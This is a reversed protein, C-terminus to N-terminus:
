HYMTLYTTLIKEGWLLAVASGMALFPGFPIRDRRGRLGLLILLIGVLGGFLFGLFVAVIVYRGLVAGMLLAMKVDGLGMGGPWILALLLLFVAACASGILFEWWHKPELAIAAALGAAAAPLVIVNPIIQHELDIFAIAILIALFAWELVVRWGSSGLTVPLIFCVATLAEVAPYRASIPQHCEACKGRVILWGLLPLNYYWHIGTGCRPCRSGPRVLSEGRPLRHIVVNLFSGVVAGLVAAILIM